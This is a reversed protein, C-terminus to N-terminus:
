RCATIVCLPLAYNTGAANTGVLREGNFRQDENLRRVTHFATEQGDELTRQDASLKARNWVELPWFRVLQVCNRKQSDSTGHPQTLTISALV